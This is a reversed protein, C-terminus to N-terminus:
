HGSELLTCRCNFSPLILCVEKAIAASPSNRKAGDAWASQVGALLIVQVSPLEELGAMAVPGVFEM